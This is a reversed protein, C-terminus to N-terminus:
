QIAGLIEAVADTDVRLFELVLISLQPYFVPNKQQVTQNVFDPVWTLLHGKLFDDSGQLRHVTENVDGAVYASDARSALQAMFDLEIAIHDDAVRPYLTTLFGQARYANRVKLTGPQFLVREKTKYVSEWPPALLESPGVFFRTYESSMRELTDESHARIDNLVPQMRQIAQAYPCAENEEFLAFMSGTTENALVDLQEWTPPNGMVNQLIRYVYARASLLIQVESHGM